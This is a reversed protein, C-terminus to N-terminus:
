KGKQIKKITAKIHIPPRRVKKGRWQMRNASVEQRERGKEKKPDPRMQTKGTLESSKYEATIRGEL